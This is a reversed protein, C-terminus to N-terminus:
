RGGNFLRPFGLLGIVTVRHAVRLKEVFYVM